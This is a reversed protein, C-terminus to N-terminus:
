NDSLLIHWESTKKALWVEYMSIHNLLGRLDPLMLISFFCHDKTIANNGVVTLADKTDMSLLVIADHGPIRKAAWHALLNRFPRRFEIEDLKELTDNLEPSSRELNMVVKKTLEVLESTRFHKKRTVLGASCFVELSRRLNFEIFNFIQVFAGILFTDERELQLLESLELTLFHEQVIRLQESEFAEPLAM